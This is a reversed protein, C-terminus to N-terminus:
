FHTRAFFSPFGFIIHVIATRAAVLANTYQVLALQMASLCVCAHMIYALVLSRKLISDILSCGSKIFTCKFNKRTRGISRMYYLHHYYTLINPLSRWIYIHFFSVIAGDGCSPLCIEKLVIEHTCVIQNKDEANKKSSELPTVMALHAVM